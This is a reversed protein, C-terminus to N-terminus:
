PRAWVTSHATRRMAERAGSARRRFIGVQAAIRILAAVKPPRDMGMHSIPPAIPPRHAARISGACISNEIILAGRDLISRAAVREGGISYRSDVGNKAAWKPAPTETMMVAEAATTINTMKVTSLQCIM